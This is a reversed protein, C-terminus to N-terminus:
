SFIEQPASKKLKTFNRLQVVFFFFSYKLFFTWKDKDPRIIVKIRHWFYNFYDHQQALCYCMAGLFNWLRECSRMKDIETEHLTSEGQEKDYTKRPDYHFTHEAINSFYM